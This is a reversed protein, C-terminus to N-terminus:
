MGLLSNYSPVRGLRGVVDGRVLHEKAEADDAIQECRGHADKERESKIPQEFSHILSQRPQHHDEPAQHHGGDVEEVRDVVSSRQQENAAGIEQRDEFLRLAVRQGHQKEAEMVM